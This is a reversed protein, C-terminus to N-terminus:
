TFAEISKDHSYTEFYNTRASGLPKEVKELRVLMKISWSYLKESMVKSRKAKEDM